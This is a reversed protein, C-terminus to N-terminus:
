SLSSMQGPSHGLPIIRELSPIVHIVKTVQQHINLLHFLAAQVDARIYGFINDTKGNLSGSLAAGLETRNPDSNVKYIKM